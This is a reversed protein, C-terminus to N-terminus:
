DSLAKLDQLDLNDLIVPCVLQDLHGPLDRTEKLVRREQNVLNVPSVEHDLSERQARSEKLVLVVM